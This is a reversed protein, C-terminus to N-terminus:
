KVGVYKMYYSHNVTNLPIFSWLNMKNILYSTKEPDLKFAFNLKENLTKKTAIQIIKPHKAVYNIISNDINFNLKVALYIARVVRNRNSQLTIEPALCTRIMRAKIDSEGRKTIDILKQLDLSLLLSNCTFDRSYIEQQMSTPNTININRLITNISPVNFNSSFDLKLNGIFISSHGDPMIKRTVHYKKNLFKEFEQSLYDITKDGTTVDLDVINDLRNLYRDRPVGGCIYPTSTGIKSQLASLDSLLQKLKM